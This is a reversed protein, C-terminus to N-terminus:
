DLGHEKAFKAWEIKAEELERKSEREARERYMEYGKKHCEYCRSVIPERKTEEEHRIGNPCNDPSIGWIACHGCLRLQGKQRTGAWHEKSQCWEQQYTQCCM